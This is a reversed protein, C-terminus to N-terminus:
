PGGSLNMTHLICACLLSAPRVWQRCKRLLCAAPSSRCRDLGHTVTASAAWAGAGCQFGQLAASRASPVGLSMIRQGPANEAAEQFELHQYYYRISDNVILSLRGIYTCEQCICLDFSTQIECIVASNSLSDDSLRQPFPRTQHCLGTIGALWPQMAGQRLIMMM